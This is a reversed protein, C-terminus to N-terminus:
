RITPTLKIPWADPYLIELTSGTALGPIDRLKVSAILEVVQPDPRDDAATTTTWLYAPQEQPQTIRCPVIYLDREGGFPKLSFTRRFPLLDGAQWDFTKGINLNLSGPFIPEGLWGEYAAAFRALWLHADHKGDQVVGVLRTHKTRKM